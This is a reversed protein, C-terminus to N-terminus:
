YICLYLRCLKLWLTQYSSMFTKLQHNLSNAFFDLLSRHRRLIKFVVQLLIGVRYKGYFPLPLSDELVNFTMLSSTLGKMIKKRYIWWDIHSLLVQVIPISSRLRLINTRLTRTPWCLQFVLIHLFGVPAVDCPFNMLFSLPITSCNSIFVSNHLIQIIQYLSVFDGGRPSSNPWLIDRLVGVLVPFVSIYFDAM